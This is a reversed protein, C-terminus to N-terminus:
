KTFKLNQSLKTRNRQKKEEKLKRLKTLRQQKEKNSDTLEDFKAM